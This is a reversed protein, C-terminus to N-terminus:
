KILRAVAFRDPPCYGELFEQRSPRQHRCSRLLVFKDQLDIGLNTCCACNRQEKPGGVM